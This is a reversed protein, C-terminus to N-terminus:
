LDAETEHARLHTYSVPPCPTCLLYLVTHTAPLPSHAYSVLSLTCLITPSPTHLLYPVTHMASVPRNAEPTPVCLNTQAAAIFEGGDDAARWYRFRYPAVRLSVSLQVCLRMCHIRRRVRVM